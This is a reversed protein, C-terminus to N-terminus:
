SPTGALQRKLAILRSKTSGDILRDGIRAVLGGLIDPDVETEVVVPGGTVDVLRRQVAARDQESLPVATTV